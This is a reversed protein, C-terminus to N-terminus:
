ARRGLVRGIYWGNWVMLAAFVAIFLGESAGVGIEVPLLVVLPIRLVAEALLGGGWVASTLRFARRVDPESRYRDALAAARTPVFSQAAGLTLPRRGRVATVLFVTGVAATVLSNKLLLARPDGSVFALLLGIGYVLLMVIAFQNLTRHRVAGWVTRAAAVGSAVLLAAWDTVGWLHLAYYAAVPLGVDWALGRLMWLTANPRPEHPRHVTTM